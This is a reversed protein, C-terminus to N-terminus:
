PQAAEPGPMADLMAQVAARAAVSDEILARGRALTTPPEVIPPALTGEATPITVLPEPDPLALAAAASLVPDAELSAVAAWDQGQWLAREAAADDGAAAFASSAGVPDGLQVQAQARLIEAEAGTAGALIRLAARADRRALEARAALLRRGADDGVPPLWALGADPFGLDILRGAITTATAADTAPVADRPLVAQALLASDPGVMALLPWLEADFGPDGTASIAFASAFDGGSALALGEARRLEPGLPGDGQEQVLASLAAVTEPDVPAGQALQAQVLDILAQPLMPGSDAAVEEIRAVAEDPRGDHLDIRAEALQAADGPDGPARLIADRVSRASAVDDISLFREALGPGLQRRLGLPLASFARLVAATRPRDSLKLDPRSLVAWLAANTDCDAQGAFPNDPAVADGDVIFGMTEWLAADPPQVAFAQLTERAEAGFGFYLLLRTQREVMGPDPRDFEGLAAARTEALQETFPRDDAWTVMDLRTDEICIDGQPTLDPEPDRASLVAIGPGFSSSVHDQISPGQPRDGQDEPNGETPRDLPLAMDVLGQSASRSLQELLDERMQQMEAPPLAVVPVQADRFLRAWDADNPMAAAPRARPRPPVRGALEPMASGSLALEFSSGPPPPGDKIDIVLIDDRFEFPMAHCACGIGLQLDGSEPDAWIAALRTRPIMAFVQRLDFRIDERDLRLEYGDPTRGFQWPTPQSLDLVIRSFGEHEGSVIAVTEARAAGAALLLLILLATRM